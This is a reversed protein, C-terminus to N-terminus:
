HKYSLYLANKDTMSARAKLHEFVVSQVVPNGDARLTRKIAQLATNRHGCSITYGSSDPTHAM